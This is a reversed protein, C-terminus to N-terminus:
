TQKFKEVMAPNYNSSKTSQHVNESGMKEETHGVLFSLSFTLLPSIVSMTICRRQVLSQSIGALNYYYDTAQCRPVSSAMRPNQLAELSSRPIAGPRRSEPAFVKEVMKSHM